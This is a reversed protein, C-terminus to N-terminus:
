IQICGITILPWMKETILIDLLYILFRREESSYGIQLSGNEFLETTYSGYDLAANLDEHVFPIHFGELYNDCYLAWHCNVLYDKSQLSDLKFEDLPLFGIREKMKSLVQEIDFDPDIGVFLQPGLQSTQFAKLHDCARPFNEAEKFEPMFKFGGMQKGPEEM